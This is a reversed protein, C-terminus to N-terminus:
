CRSAADKNDELMVGRELCRSRGAPAQLADGLQLCFLLVAGVLGGLDRGALLAVNFLQRHPSVPSQAETVASNDPHCTSM